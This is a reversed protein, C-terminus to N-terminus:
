SRAITSCVTCSPDAPIRSERFSGKLADYSLLRGTLLTGTELLLKIVETAQLSGVVAPTVGLVGAEACNPGDAVGHRDPFLCQYCPYNGRGPWFVSVQGEFRLVAGYVLPLGMKACHENLLYRTTLNDSGDVVIRYGALLSGANDDTIRQSHMNIVIDPNIALLTQRASETKLVGVRDDRHLIQRQLNSRDVRDADVIGLCGVGAAALYTLVPSGLGGAGIVLVRGAQLKKQGAVGVGPLVMQRRYRDTSEQDLLGARNVPLGGQQWAQYGGTVSYIRIRAKAALKGATELSRRGTGCILILAAHDGTGEAILKDAPINVADTPTGDMLEEAGRIDVLVAGASQMERAVVPGIESVPGAIM